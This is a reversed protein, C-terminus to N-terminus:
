KRQLKPPSRVISVSRRENGKRCCYIAITAPLEEVEFGKGISRAMAEIMVM